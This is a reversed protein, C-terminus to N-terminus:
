CTGAQKCASQGASNSSNSPPLGMGGAIASGIGGFVPGLVGGIVAQLLMQTIMKEMELNPDKVEEEKKIEPPKFEKNQLRPDDLKLNGPVGDLQGNVSGISALPAGGGSPKSATADFGRSNYNAASALDKANAASKTTQDLKKLANLTENTGANIRGRNPNGFAPLGTTNAAGPNSRGSGFATAGSSFSAGSSGGGGSGGLGSSMPAFKGKGVTFGTQVAADGWGKNKGKSSASSSSEAVKKLAEGLSGKAKLATAADTIPSGSNVASIPAQYLSSTPADDPSSRRKYSGDMSLSMAAGPAGTPNSVLDLSELSQNSAQLGSEGAGTPLSGDGAGGGSMLMLTGGGVFVFFLLVVWWYKRLLDDDKRGITPM